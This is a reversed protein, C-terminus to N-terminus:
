LVVIGASGSKGECTATITAGGLAHATVTLAIEGNADSTAQTPAVSAQAAASSGITCARGPLAAGGADQVRVVLTGTNGALLMLASPTVTVSNVASAVTVPM